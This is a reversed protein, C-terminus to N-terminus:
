KWDKFAQAFNDSSGNHATFVKEVGKLAALKKISRKDQETDMNILSIFPVATGNKLRLTDGTFLYKGNVLYSFSGLTHGPTLVAQVSFGGINTVQGDNLFGYSRTLSNTFIPSRRIKGNILPEEEHSIFIKANPFIAIGGTHDYDTHTLLVILVRNPDIGAKKMESLTLNTDKGSDIAAYDNGAKLLFFNVMKNDVAVIGPAIEGTPLPKMRIFESVFGFFFYGAALVLLVAVSIGITMGKKLAM